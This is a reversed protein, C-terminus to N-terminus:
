PENLLMNKKVWNLEDVHITHSMGKYIKLTVHAGLKQMLEKSQESRILPIYPDQDSTGIFVPTGEFHGQYKKEDITSGILGGTFAIIGGYKTAFRTSVELALCAGQSFGMLYIHPKSISQAIEEVLKKISEISSSLWPENLQEEAMFSHPYWTQNPAQPVVIFLQEHAFAEALSFIGRATGGRGHLIILAQSAQALPPGKYLVESFTM